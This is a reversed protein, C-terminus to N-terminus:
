CLVVLYFDRNAAAGAAFTSVTVANASNGSPRVVASDDNGTNGVAVNGASAVYACQSVNQNFTVQYNGVSLQTVSVVNRNRLLVGNNVVAYSGATNAITASPVTGMTALNIDKGKITGNIIRSGLITNKAIKDGTVARSKLAKTGVSNDAVSAAYGVGGMAVFLAVLAVIMAPSPRHKSLLRMVEGENSNKRTVECCAVFHRSRAM